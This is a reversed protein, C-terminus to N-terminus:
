GCTFTNLPDSPMSSLRGGSGANAEVNLPPTRTETPSTFPSPMRSNITPAPGPSRLFHFHEVERGPLHEFLVRRKDRRVRAAHKHRHRSSEDPNEGREGSRPSPGPLPTETRCRLVEGGLGRESVSLPLLAIVEEGGQGRRRSPQPRRPRGRRRRHSGDLIRIYQDNSDGVTVTRREIGRGKSVYCVPKGEYETVAQVPVMLADPVTRVHIRVEATMGPKLGASTPLDDIDIEVLYEKVTQRWGESQALTGVTKVTGTLPHNPLADVQLTAKQGPEIKKIVSEHIKVKIKMHELDPLTFIPQQYFVVAGPQIRSGEDYYRKFYVLIGDEPAKIVCKAIQDNIRDFAQKELNATIATSDAESKLKATAAKQSKKTRELEGGAENAKGELETEKRTKDFETLLGLEAEGQSVLYREQEVALEESRIQEFPTFGRKVMSRTFVLKDEADKLKKKAVAIAGQRKDLEVQYERKKYKEVDIKALKWVLEAKETESEEKNRQVEYDGAASAAKSDANKWKVEQEAARRKLEETDFQGVEEGKKVRTGEPVIHVLKIEKAEVDCRVMISKISDLEGRETVVVPLDGRVATATIVNSQPALGDLRM